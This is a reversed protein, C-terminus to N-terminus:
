ICVEKITPHVYVDTFDIGKLLLIKDISLFWIEHQPYTIKMDSMNINVYFHKKNLDVITDNLASNALAKNPYLMLKRHIHKPPSLTVFTKFQDLDM